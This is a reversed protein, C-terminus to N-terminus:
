APPLSATPVKRAETRMGAPTPIEVYVISEDTGVKGLDTEHTGFIAFVRRDVNVMVQAGTREAAAAWRKIQSYYPERRWADARQAEVHITMIRGENGTAIIMRSKLPQWEPGLWSATLYLCHFDACEQPREEYIACGQKSPCHNCWQNAPKELAGIGMVKCCLACDGCSRGSVYDPTNTAITPM